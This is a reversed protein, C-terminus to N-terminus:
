ISAQFRPLKGSKLNYRYVAALFRYSLLLYAIALILGLLLNQMLQNPALRGDLLARLSEFVYAPPFLKAATCLSPPLTDIPYYVGAILSLVMPIPWGLWEATPGLRFIMACICIGMSMGFLFLIVLFPILTLGVLFIDYGFGLGAIASMIFLGLAGTIM